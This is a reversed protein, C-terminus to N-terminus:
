SNRLVLLRDEIISDNEIGLDVRLLKAFEFVKDELEHSLDQSHNNFYHNSVSAQYSTLEKELKFLELRIESTTILNVKNICGVLEIYKALHLNWDNHNESNGSGDADCSTPLTLSSVLYQTYAETLAIYQDRKSEAVKELKIENLTNKAAIRISVILAAAGILAGFFGLFGQIYAADITARIADM